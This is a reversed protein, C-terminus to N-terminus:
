PIYITGAGISQSYGGVSVQTITEPTGSVHIHILSPRKMEFGQECIMHQATASDVVGYHLLYAGLPGCASGTAPDEIIGLEPAFM